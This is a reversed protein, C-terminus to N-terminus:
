IYLYFVIVILYVYIIVERMEKLLDVFNQKDSPTGGRNAPYEWDLDLGDFGHEELLDIVSEIFKERKAPDSVMKSYNISGENWGGIALLTKANPNEKKINTFRGYANKGWNNPLDNFADLAKITFESGDLGAFSYIYHTCLHPDINEVDFKGDGPRYKSWSGFYCVVKKNNENDLAQGSIIIHVLFYVLPAIKNIPLM